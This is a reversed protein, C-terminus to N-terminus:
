RRETGEQTLGLVPVLPRPITLGGNFATDVWAEIEQPPASPAARVSIRLLARLQGDVQGILV